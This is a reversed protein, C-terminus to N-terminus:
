FQCVSPPCAMVTTRPLSQWDPALDSAQSPAVPERAGLGNAPMTWLQRPTTAIDGTGISGFLLQTGDPSWAAPAFDTWISKSLVLRNSGDVNSVALGPRGLATTTQFALKTGDPSWSPASGRGSLVRQNTGDPNMGFVVGAGGRTSVFAITSGDPSWAPTGDFAPDRSLNARGTADVNIVHVEADGSGYPQNQFAIRQSDPSWTPLQNTATSDSTLARAGSGDASMVWIQAGRVFAIKTNDPSFRPQTGGSTTLQRLGSGDPNITYILYRAGDARNSSFAIKGNKGPLVAFAASPALVAILLLTLCAVVVHRARGRPRGASACRRPARASLLRNRM